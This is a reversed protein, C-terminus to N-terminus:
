NDLSASSQQEDHRRQSPVHTDDDHRALHADGEVEREAVKRPEPGIRVDIQRSSRM